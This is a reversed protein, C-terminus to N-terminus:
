REHKNPLRLDYPQTGDAGQCLVVEKFHVGDRLQQIMPTLAEMEEEEEKASGEIRSKKL